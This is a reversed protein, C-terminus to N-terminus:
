RKIKPVTFYFTSGKGETSEIRIAGGQKEVFEKCLILGLGSGKEDNTGKTSITHNTVFMLKLRQESIGVGNDSVAVEVYDEYEYESLDIRGGNPTFKVANALLNHLILRLMQSDAAVFVNEKINNNISINKQKATGEIIKIVEDSKELLNIEAPNFEIRGSQMRSWELLNELLVFVNKAANNIEMTFFKIEDESLKSYEENLYESFSILPQFPTRLDHAIISFLKDKTANTEKLKKESEKLKEEARKQPTNDHAVYLVSEESLYTIRAQFWYDEGNLNLPYDLVVMEKTKLCKEIGNLFYDAVEKSFIEHLTKGLLQKSPLILLEENTPAIKVYKGKRDLEIIIESMGGFLAKLEKEHARIKLIARSLLWILLSIIFASIYLLITITETQSGYNVWGNLPVGALTWNGTPLLVDVTVPNQDYIKEDGFFSEGNIGTGDIGKLAYRYNKDESTFNIENFLKDKLIVIDTVGWFKSLGNGMKNFIPTYSIFAIGGEILEVPGAVFTNKTQITKEVIQKRMPHALLNLGIASEHGKLPYIANIICDKSIAMSNIVSDKNILEDALKYFSDNSINPNISIYAAIGKTYYIRSYLSKEIQSKKLILTELLVGRVDQEKKEQNFETYQLIIIVFVILSLLAIAIPQYKVNKFIRM